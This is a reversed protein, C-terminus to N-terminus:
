REYDHNSVAKNVVNEKLAKEAAVQAMTRNIREDLTENLNIGRAEAMEQEEKSLSRFHSTLKRWKENLKGGCITPMKNIDISAMMTAAKCIEDIRAPTFEKIDAFRCHSRIRIDNDKSISGCSIFLQKKAVGVFLYFRNEGGGSRATFPRIFDGEFTGQKLCKELTRFSPSIDEMYQKYENERGKECSVFLGCLSTVSEM